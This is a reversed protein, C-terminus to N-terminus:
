RKRRSVNSKPRKENQVSKSILKRLLHLSLERHLNRKKRRNRKRRLSRRSRHKRRPSLSQLHHLRHGHNLMQLQTRGCRELWPRKRFVILSRVRELSTKLMRRYRNSLMPSNPNAKPGKSESLKIWRNVNSRITASRQNRRDRLLRKASSPLVWQMRRNRSKLRRRRGRRNM